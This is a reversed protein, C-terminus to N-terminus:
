FLGKVKKVASSAGDIITEGVKKTGEIVANGAKKTTEWVQTGVNGVQNSITLSLKQLDAASLECPNQKGSFIGLTAFNFVGKITSTTTAIPDPVYIPKNWTGKVYLPVALKALSVGKGQPNLHLSLAGTNFNITGYILVTAGRTDLVTVNDDTIGKDIAMTTTLCNLQISKQGRSGALLTLFDGRLGSGPQIPYVAKSLKVTAQGNLNTIFTHSTNGQTRLNLQAKLKGGQLPLGLAFSQNVEDANLDTATLNFQYGIHQPQQFNLTLDGTMRGSWISADLDTVVLESNQYTLQADIQHAGIAPLKVQFLTEYPSLDDGTATLNAKVAGNQQMTLQGNVNNQGAWANIQASTKKDSSTPVRVTLQVPQNQYMARAKLTLPQQATALSLTAENLFVETTAYVLKLRQIDITKVEVSVNEDSAKETNESGLQLQWNKQQNKTELYLTGEELLIQDLAIIKDRLKEANVSVFVKKLRLMNPQHQAWSANGLRVNELSLSPEPLFAIGINGDIHVTRGTLLKARNEINTKYPNLNIASILILLAVLSTLVTLLSFWILRPLFYLFIFRVTNVKSVNRCMQLTYVITFSFWIFFPPSSRLRMPNVADFNTPYAKRALTYVRGQQFDAMSTPAKGCWDVFNKEIGKIHICTKIM